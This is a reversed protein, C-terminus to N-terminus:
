RDVGLYFVHYYDSGNIECPKYRYGCAIKGFARKADRLSSFKDVKSTMGRNVAVLLYKADCPKPLQHTIIGPNRPISKKSRKHM